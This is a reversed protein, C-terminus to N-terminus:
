HYLMKKYIYIYIYLIVYYHRHNQTKHKICKDYICLLQWKKVSSLWRRLETFLGQSLVHGRLSLEDKCARDCIHCVPYWVKDNFIDWYM